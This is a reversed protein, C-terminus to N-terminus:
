TQFANAFFLSIQVFFYRFGEGAASYMIIWNKTLLSGPSGPSLVGNAPVVIGASVAPSGPSGWLLAGGRELRLVFLVTGM